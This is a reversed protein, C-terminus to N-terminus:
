GRRARLVLSPYGGRWVHARGTVRFGAAVLDATPDLPALGGLRAPAARAAGALIRSLLRGAFRDPSIWVTVVVLRASPSARLLRWTEGLVTRRDERDLLHLLYTCIAVDACADPLPADRADGVLTTWGAPLRGVQKLMEASQDLGIAQAPPRATRALARLVVGTGTAVDVVREGATVGAMRLATDVARAELREQAGYRRANADWAPRAAAVSAAM